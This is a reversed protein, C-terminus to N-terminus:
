WGYATGHQGWWSGGNVNGLVADACYPAYRGYGIKKMWLAPDINTEKVVKGDPAYCIGKSDVKYVTACGTMLCLIPIIIKKM